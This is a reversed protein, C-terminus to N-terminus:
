KGIKGLADFVSDQKNKQQMSRNLKSEKALVDWKTQKCSPCQKPRELSSLWTAGCRLCKKISRALKGRKVRM